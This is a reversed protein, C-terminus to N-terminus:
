ASQRALENIRAKTAHLTDCWDFNEGVNHDERLRGRPDHVAAWEVATTYNDGEANTCHASVAAWRGDESAYWGAEIKNLKVMSMNYVVRLCTDVLDDSAM